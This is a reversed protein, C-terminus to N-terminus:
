YERATSITRVPLVKSRRRNKICVYLHNGIFATCFCLAFFVFFVVAAAYSSPNYNTTLHANYDNSSLVRGNYVNGVILEELWFELEIVTKTGSTHCTLDPCTALVILRDKNVGTGYYKVVVTAQWVADPASANGFCAPGKWCLKVPHDDFKRAESATAAVEAYSFLAIMLCIIGLLFQILRYKLVKKDDWDGPPCVTCIATWM